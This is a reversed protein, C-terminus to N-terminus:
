VCGSCIAIASHAGRRQLSLPRYLSPILVSPQIYLGFRTRALGPSVFSPSSLSLYCPALLLPNPEIRLRTIDSGSGPPPIVSNNWPQARAPARPPEQISLHIPFRESGGCRTPAIPGRAPARPHKGTPSPSTPTAASSPSLCPLRRPSPSPPPSSPSSPSSTASPPRCTQEPYAATTTPSPAFPC